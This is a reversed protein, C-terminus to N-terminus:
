EGEHKRIERQLQIVARNLSPWEEADIRIENTKSDGYQSLVLFMGGAEDDISVTIASEGYIPNEAEYYVVLSRVMTRYKSM